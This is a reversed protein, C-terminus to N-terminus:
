MSVVEKIKDAFGVLSRWPRREEDRAALPNDMATATPM